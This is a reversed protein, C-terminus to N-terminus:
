GEPLNLDPCFKFGPMRVGFDTNRCRAPSCTLPILSKPKPTLSITYMKIATTAYIHVITM